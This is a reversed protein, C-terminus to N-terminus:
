TRSMRRQGQSQQQTALEPVVPSAEESAQTHSYQVTDVGKVANEDIHVAVIDSEPVDFM